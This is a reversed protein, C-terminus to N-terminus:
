HVIGRGEVGLRGGWIIALIERKDQIVLLAKGSPITYLEPLPDVGEADAPRGDRKVRWGLCDGLLTLAKAEVVEDPVKQDGSGTYMRVGADFDHIYDIPKKPVKLTEPDTKSSRYMIHVADGVVGIHTPIKFGIAFEGIDTPDLKWFVQYMSVAKRAADPIKSPNSRPPQPHQRFVHMGGIWFGLIFDRQIRAVREYDDTTRGEERLLKFLWQATRADQWAWHGAYAGRMREIMAYAKDFQGEDFADAAVALDEADRPEALPDAIASDKARATETAHASEEGKEYAILNIGQPIPSGVYPNRKVDERSLATDAAIDDIRSRLLSADYPRKNMELWREYQGLWFGVTFSDRDLALSLKGWGPDTSSPVQGVKHDKRFKELAWDLKQKPLRDFIAFAQARTQGQELADFAADLDHRMEEDLHVPYHVAQARGHDITKPYLWTNNEAPNARARTRTVLRYLEMYYGIVFEQVDAAGGGLEEIVYPSKGALTAAYTTNVSTLFWGIDNDSGPFEADTVFAITGTAKLMVISTVKNWAVYGDDVWWAGLYSGASTFGRLLAYARTKDNTAEVADAAVAVTDFDVADFAEAGGAIFDVGAYYRGALRDIPEDARREGPNEKCVCKGM